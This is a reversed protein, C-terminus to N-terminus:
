PITLMFMALITPLLSVTLVVAKASLALVVVRTSSVSLFGLILDEM